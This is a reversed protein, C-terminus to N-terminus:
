IALQSESIARDVPPPSHIARGSASRSGRLAMISSRLLSFSLRCRLWCMTPGYAQNRKEALLSALRKYTNTAIRGFGGTCSMVIPSFSAHEVNLIRQEYERKKENEHKRYCTSLNSHRNSPAFPNFVRIDLYTKEYRGGWLGNMAVDLRAGDQSNASAGSLYEGSLPQLHPEVTVSNCVEASLAATIDRIENHRLSPFGGKPCSLAHEVTFQRGCDCREPLRSPLWGYRLCLADRFAGKHLTFGFESIPLATLWSSAGKEQALTMSHQLASPLSSKLQSAIEAETRRRNRSIENKADRQKEWTEIPIEWTKEMILSKLPGAVKMSASFEELARTIPNKLGLGGLRPPLAFVERESDTPAPRGTLAPIFEMRLTQELPQLLLEINPTTRLLHNWKSALGHTFGAYAAHPQTVAIKSLHKLESCWSDVKSTVFQQVFTPSGLPAGLHPRGETTINIGSDAFFKQAKPLHAQKTILWTKLPNPYYGYLPGLESLVKWWNLLHEIQGSASADDAYWSQLVSGPLRKILPVTSLAYLPMSLPDGQTTGEQSLLVSNGIFLDASSRYLNVSTTALSPCLQGVNRLAVQRNLANFANTADVLLVAEIDDDHFSERMAHVVAETGAPQGACLQMSGAVEQIDGCTVSLTAKTIIRRATECVGIPRVGPNKDLAVLRSALFSALGEPDVVSSALRKAMLALSHCLDDSEKKFSTCMTRWMKADTGSPGASGSTRLATARILSADIKEFIVPHVEVQNITPPILADRSAPMGQPHKNKLADLVTMTIDGISIMDSPNLVGGKDEDTLLRLADKVNGNFIKKAFQLGSKDPDHNSTSPYPPPKKLYKQLTRGEFLLAEFDGDRWLNLRRELCVRHEKHKSKAHPKQLLLGPMIAAAKLAICELSSKEAYARYLRALESIFSSGANGWPIPFLQKKWGVVESYASSITSIVSVADREGWTFTPSQMPEFVPLSPALPEPEPSPSSSVACCIDDSVQTPLGCTGQQSSNTMPINLGSPPRPTPPSSNSNPSFSAEQNTCCGLRSPLCSRCKIGAKACSCNGCRGNRNCRCCNRM